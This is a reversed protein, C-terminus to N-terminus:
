PAHDIRELRLLRNDAGLLLEFRGIVGEPGVFRRFASAPVQVRRGDDALVSVASAHGRYYHLFESASLNMSFLIREMIRARALGNAGTGTQLTQVPLADILPFDM